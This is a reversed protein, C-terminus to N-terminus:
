TPRTYVRHVAEPPQGPTPTWPAILWDYGAQGAAAQLAPVVVAPDGDMRVVTATTWARQRVQRALRWASRLGAGRLAESVDPVAAGGQRVLRDDAHSGAQGPQDGGEALSPEERTVVPLRWSSRDEVPEFGNAELLAALQPPHWPRGTVGPVDHGAVQVGAEEAATFSLPGTMSRCGQEALWRAAADLLAEAVAADDDLWWFGFRGEGGPRDVHATIRGVPRGLRRALFYRGDGREFFPNRGPDLRYREWSLVLPAFRPDDGHLAHPLETFRALAKAGDVEEVSVRSPM